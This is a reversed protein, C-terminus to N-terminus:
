SQFGKHGQLNGGPHRGRAVTQWWALVANCREVEDINVLTLLPLNGRWDPAARHDLIALGAVAVAERWPMAVLGLGRRELFGAIRPHPRAAVGEGLRTLLIRDDGVLLIRRQSASRAILEAALTSKGSRSAGLLLLARDGIAVASAHIAFAPEAPM